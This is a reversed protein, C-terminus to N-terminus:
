FNDDSGVIQCARWFRWIRKRTQLGLLCWVSDIKSTIWCPEELARPQSVQGSRTIRNWFVIRLISMQLWNEAEKTELKWSLIESYGCSNLCTITYPKNDEVESWSIRPSVQLSTSNASPCKTSPVWVTISSTVQFSFLLPFSRLMTTKTETPLIQARLTSSSSTATTHKTTSLNVGCGSAKRAPLQRPMSRSSRNHFLIVGKGQLNLLKNLLFSKGTRYKGALCVFGVPKNYM